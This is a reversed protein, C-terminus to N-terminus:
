PAPMNETQFCAHNPQVCHASEMHWAKACQMGKPDLTEFYNVPVTAPPPNALREQMLKFDSPSLKKSRDKPNDQAIKEQERLQLKARHAQAQEYLRDHTQKKQEESLRAPPHPKLDLPDEFSGTTKGFYMTPKGREEPVRFNQMRKEFAKREDYVDRRPISNKYPEYMRYVFEEEEEPRMKRYVTRLNPDYSEADHEYHPRPQLLREIVEQRESDSRQPPQRRRYHESEPTKKPASLRDWVEPAGTSHSRSRSSRRGPSKTGSRSSRKKPSASYGTVAPFPWSDYEMAETLAGPGSIRNGFEDLYYVNAIRGSM